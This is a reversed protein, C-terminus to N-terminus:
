LPRAPWPRQRHWGELWPVTIYTYKYLWPEIMRRTLTCYQLKNIYYFNILEKKKDLNVFENKKNLNMWEIKMDLNM